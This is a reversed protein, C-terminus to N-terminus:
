RGTRMNRSTQPPLGSRVGQRACRLTASRTSGARPTLLRILHPLPRWPYLAGRARAIGRAHALGYFWVPGDLGDPHVRVAEVRYEAQRSQRVGDAGRQRGVFSGMRVETGTRRSRLAPHAHRASGAAASSPLRVTNEATDLLAQYVDAADVGLQAARAGYKAAFDGLIPMGNSGGQVYGSHARARTLM